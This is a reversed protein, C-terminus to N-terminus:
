LTRACATFVACTQGLSRFDNDRAVFVADRVHLAPVFECFLGALRATRLLTERVSARGFLGTPHFPLDVINSKELAHTMAPSNTRTIRTIRTVNAFIIRFTPGWSARTM